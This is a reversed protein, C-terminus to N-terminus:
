GEYEIMLAGAQLVQDKCVHVTKIIGSSPARIINEMKMAILSILEEGEKVEDGDKVKVSVVQGGLPAFVEKEKKSTNRTLMYRELESVKPSRVYAVATVGAHVLKYGTPIHEIKVHLNKGNVQCTFLRNGITWNSRISIRNTGQRINYGSPVPKIIVPFLAGDLSVVWRTMLKDARDRVRESLLSMRTQEAMFIYIATAVFIQSIESTLEAGAFGKPYEETILNTSIDGAAFRPHTILAELFSVNHNIGRIVFSSLASKMYDIAQSRNEGVACLKAILTDYYMSAEAGSDISTDVRINPSKPPERYDTIRGSSPLFGRSPDEACIRCEIAWKDLKIDEQKISLKNGAAINIMEEVIDIGTVLETVTHEVQLRTNMELFYFQEKKDVIFEVTGASYYKAEKALSRSQAYMQERLEDTICVSPAEEIVKQHSRQISCEREGLCVINGYKDALIQIEIHRPSDLIFKEIFVRSDNFNSAAEIQASEFADIMQSANHVVRMGRGGGGATAKVIIPFGIEEAIKVAQASDPITGIYGPVANVGAKLAIKKAKIKDGMNKISSASPGILTVGQRALASAFKPNEALFGYGPHVAQAGSKMVAKIINPISLYSKTAPSPGIYHAEDAQQVHLANADAESYVAVAKINMKKLTRMIRLAVEGRNAVLVTDFPPM